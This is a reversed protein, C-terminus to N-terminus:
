ARPPPSHIDKYPGVAVASHKALFNSSKGGYKGVVITVASKSFFFKFCDVTEKGESDHEEHEVFANGWGFVVEALFETLSEIDNISLNEPVFDPHPDKPDISINFFHLALLLCGIRYFFAYSKHTSEM